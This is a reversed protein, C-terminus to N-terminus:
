HSLKSSKMAEFEAMIIQMKESLDPLKMYESWLTDEVIDHIEGALEAIIRKKRALAKTYEKDDM